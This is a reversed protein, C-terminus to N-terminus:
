SSHPKNGIDLPKIEPIDAIKVAGTSCVSCHGCKKAKVAEGFFAALKFSICEDSEFFSVMEDIRDIQHHEKESFIAM